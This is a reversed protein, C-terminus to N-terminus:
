ARTYNMLEQESICIAAGKIGQPLEEKMVEEKAAECAQSSNFAHHGIVPPINQVSTFLVFILVYKM